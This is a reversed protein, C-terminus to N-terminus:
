RGPYLGCPILLDLRAKANWARVIGRRSAAERMDGSGTVGVRLREGAREAAVEVPDRHFAQLLIACPTVLSGSCEGGVNMAIERTFRDRGRRGAPGIPEPLQQMLM